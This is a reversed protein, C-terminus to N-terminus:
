YEAYKRKVDEWYWVATGEHSKVGNEYDSLFDEILGEPSYKKNFRKEEVVRYALRSATIEIELRDEKYFKECFLATLEAVYKAMAEKWTLGEKVFAEFVGETKVTICLSDVTTSWIDINVHNDRYKLM